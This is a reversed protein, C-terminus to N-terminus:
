VADSEDAGPTPFRRPPCLPGLHATLKRTATNLLVGYVYVHVRVCARTRGYFFFFFRPSGIHFELQEARPSSCRTNREALSLSRLCSATSSFGFARPGRFPLNDPELNCLRPLFVRARARTPAPARERTPSSQVGDAPYHSNSGRPLLDDPIVLSNEVYNERATEGGGGSVRAAAETIYRCVCM